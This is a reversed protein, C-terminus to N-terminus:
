WFVKCTMLSVCIGVLMTIGFGILSFYIYSVRYLNAISPAEDTLVAEVTTPFNTATDFITSFNGVQLLSM